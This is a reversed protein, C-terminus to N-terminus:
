ASPPRSDGIFDMEVLDDQNPLTALMEEITSHLIGLPLEGDVVTRIGGSKSGKAGLHLITKHPSVAVAGRLAGIDVQRGPKLIAGDAMAIVADRGVLPVIVDFPQGEPPRLTMPLRYTPRGAFRISLSAPDTADVTCTTENVTATWGPLGHLRIEGNVENKMTGVISAEGPLLALQRKEIQINAVSDRWSLEVLGAGSLPGSLSAWKGGPRRVFLEGTGPSRPHNRAEHILPRVPSAIPEWGDDALLFGAPVLPCLQLEHERGDSDPEVRFRVADDEDSHFYAAATLRALKRGLVPIDEVEAVAGQTAPEITWDNPVLVYLTKAPSSVSGARFFRLLPENPTSGEDPEFVLVDSRLADGRPWTWFHPVCDPSSISTTVPSSFPFDILLRATRMYPRVRWRRQEGIPPEFLAVEGTLHNGLEGTAIARARSMAALGPLKASPIEGDALLQLAPHWEGGRKVLYRRVEVGETALGTMKEDLLGTLLEAVLADDEAPVYIPLEDRWGAHKADLLASNRIGDRREAEAKQRLDLLSAVLESCLAVFDDHQYSKRMRGREEEAIALIEARTDVRWAIARRMIARLYDKLWGRAGEALIRVPFGGELAVTLLFERAYASSRLPRRWFDLGFITLTQKSGYPLSPFLDPAPDDWRLFTSTSERRFWEACYAVFL